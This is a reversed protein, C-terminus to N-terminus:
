IPPPRAQGNEPRARLHYSIALSGGLLLFGLAISAAGWEASSRPPPILREQLALHLYTATLPILPSRFRLRWAALLVAVTLAPM